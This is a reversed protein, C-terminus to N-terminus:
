HEAGKIANKGAKEAHGMASAAASNVGERLDTFEDPEPQAASAFNAAFAALYVAFRM